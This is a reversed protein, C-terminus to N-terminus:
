RFRRIVLHLIALVFVIAALIISAKVKQPELSHFIEEGEEIITIKEAHIDTDGGHQPCTRNFIGQLSLVDGKFKYSGQHKIGSVLEKPCFAGIAGFEDRVNIWAFENRIMIDGIVEGKYIVTKGDYQEANELLEQTSVVPAAELCRFAYFSFHLVFVLILLCLNQMKRKANQTEM